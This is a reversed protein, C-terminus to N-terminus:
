NRIMKKILSIQGLHYYSHEIVAEINRLYSGYQEKVFPENLQGNPLLSILRIFEQANKILAKKRNDWKPHSTIKPCDFSYKDSIDLPGGKLVKILGELYYNIHFTLAAITNLSNVKEESEQWSVDKLIAKYNTNAIFTGDIYVEKLRSALSESLEM